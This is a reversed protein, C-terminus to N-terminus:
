EMGKASEVWDYWNMGDDLDMNVDITDVDLNSFMDFSPDADAWLWPVSGIGMTRSDPWDMPVTPFPHDSPGVTQGM